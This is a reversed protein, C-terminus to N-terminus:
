LAEATHHEMLQRNVFRRMKEIAERHHFYVTALPMVIAGSIENLTKGERFMLLIQRQVDTLRVRELIRDLTIARDLNAPESSKLLADLVPVATREPAGNAREHRSLLDEGRLVDMMAGWIHRGAFTAFQTGHAPDFREIAQALAVIGASVFEDHLHHRAIRRCVQAAVIEVQRMGEAAVYERNSIM